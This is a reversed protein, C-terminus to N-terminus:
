HAEGKDGFKGVEPHIPIEGLFEKKFEKATRRLEVKVLFKINKVMM